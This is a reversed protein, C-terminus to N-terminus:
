PALRNVSRQGTKQWGAKTKLVAVALMNLPVARSKSVGGEVGMARRLMPLIQAATMAITLANM